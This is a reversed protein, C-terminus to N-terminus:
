LYTSADGLLYYPMRGFLGVRFVSLVVLIMIMVRGPTAASKGSSAQVTIREYRQNIEGHEM